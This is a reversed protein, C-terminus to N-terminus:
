TGCQFLANKGALGEVEHYKFNFNMKCCFFFTTQFSLKCFCSDLIVIEWFSKVLFSIHFKRQKWDKHMNQVCSTPLIRSIQHMNHRSSTPLLPAALLQHGIRLLLANTSEGLSPRPAVCNTSYLCCGIQMCNISCSIGKGLIM